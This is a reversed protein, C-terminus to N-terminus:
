ATPSRSREEYEVKDEERNVAGTESLDTQIYKPCTKETQNRDCAQANHWNTKAYLRWAEEEHRSSL